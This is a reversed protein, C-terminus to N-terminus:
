QKKEKRKGRSNMPVLEDRQAVTSMKERRQVCAKIATAIMTMLIDLGQMKRAHTKVSVWKRGNEHPKTTGEEERRRDSV